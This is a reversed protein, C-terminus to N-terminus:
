LTFACVGKSNDRRVNEVDRRDTILQTVGVGIDVGRGIRM